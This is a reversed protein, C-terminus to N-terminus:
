SSNAIEEVYFLEAMYGEKQRIEVLKTVREKLNKNKFHQRYESAKREWQKQLVQSVQNEGVTETLTDLFSVAFEGYSHPFRDRGKESLYYLHQPRGMQRQIIDHKILGENELDNLHRRTAQTSIELAKAIKNATAKNEKLLYQLIYEKSSEIVSTKM